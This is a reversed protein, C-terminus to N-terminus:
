LFILKQISWRELSIMLLKGTDTFVVDARITDQLISEYYLLEVFGGTLSVTKSEDKNSKVDLKSVAAETSKSTIPTESAMDINAGKYLVEYPDSTDM